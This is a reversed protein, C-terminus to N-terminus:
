DEDYKNELWTLMKKLIKIKSLDGLTLEEKRDWMALFDDLLSHYFEKYEGPHQIKPDTFDLSPVGFTKIILNEIQMRDVYSIKDKLSDPQRAMEVLDSVPVIKERNKILIDEFVSVFLKVAEGFFSAKSYNGLMLRLLDMRYYWSKYKKSINVYLYNSTVDSPLDRKRNLFDGLFCEEPNLKKKGSQEQVAAPLEDLEEIKM